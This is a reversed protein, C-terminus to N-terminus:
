FGSARGVERLNRVPFSPIILPLVQPGGFNQTLARFRRYEIGPYAPQVLVLGPNDKMLELGACPWIPVASSGTLTRSM